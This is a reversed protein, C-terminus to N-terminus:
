NLTLNHKEVIALLHATQSRADDLANHHTGQRQMKVDPYINKLTRYCRDNYFEFPCRINVAEYASRLITNDFGAGNGWLKITGGFTDSWSKFQTLALALSIPPPATLAAIAEKSQSLWWMTTDGDVVLGQKICDALNVNCYFSEKKRDAVIFDIVTAGISVIAANNATSMTELDVMIHAATNDKNM